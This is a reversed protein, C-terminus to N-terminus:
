LYCQVVSSRALHQAAGIAAPMDQDIELQSTVPGM